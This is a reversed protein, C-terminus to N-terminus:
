KKQKEKVQFLARISDHPTFRNGVPSPASAYMGHFDSGGTVILDHRKAVSLLYEENEQTCSTHFVEVGDLQKAAALEELLELSKYAYPHALVAIGRSEHILDIVEAADPYEVPAGLKGTKSHFLEQYLTGYIQTTYGYSMLAHMIHQKYITTSHSVHRMIDDKAVSFMRVAKEIMEKGAKKRRECTATCVGELRDPKEPLYCLIHVKRGRKKDMCSLELGPIVHIGYRKGVVNSRSFSAMTDHDTISLFDLGAKKAMSIVSEIGESGDSLSTHTHLDGKM